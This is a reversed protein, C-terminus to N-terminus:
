RLELGIGGSVATGNYTFESGVTDSASLSDPADGNQLSDYFDGTLEADVGVQVGGGTLTGSIGATVAGPGTSGIQGDTILLTGDFYSDVDGDLVGGKPDLLGVFDDFQGAITGDAFEATVDGVGIVSAQVAVDDLTVLAYGTYTASGTLPLDAPAVVTEQDARLSQYTTYDLTRDDWLSFASPVSDSETSCAAVALLAMPVLFGARIASVTMAISKILLRDEFTLM